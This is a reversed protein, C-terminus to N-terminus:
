SLQVDNPIRRTVRWIVGTGPRPAISGSRTTMIGFDAIYQATGSPDFQVDLPCELGGSNLYSAPANSEGPNVAFDHIVGTNDDVRVVKYGM